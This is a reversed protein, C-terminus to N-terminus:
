FLEFHKVYALVVAPLQLPLVRQTLTDELGAERMAFLFELHRQELCKNEKQEVFHITQCVQIDSLLCGNTLSPCAHIYVREVSDKM